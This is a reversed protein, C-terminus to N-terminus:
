ISQRRLLLTVWENERRRRVLRLGGTTFRRVVGDAQQHLIGSLILFGERAVKNELGDALDLITGATLNAAVVPYSGRMQTIESGSLRVKKAVGNIRLNERAVKLAIPDHDVAWVKKVGLKVLAIALIGSGTGVDLASFPAQGLSAVAREIFVLCGRTTAHTGTGFAMGPEITIVHRRRFKPSTLWPPTVWFSKGVKCPKIFRRWSSNWDTEKVIRWELRSQDIDPFLGKIGQIFRRVDQRILNEESPRAFYAQVRNKRIVVGPSGREILFNSVTDVAAPDTRV